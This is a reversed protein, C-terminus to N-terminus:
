KYSRYQSYGSSISSAANGFGGILSAMGQQKAASATASGTMRINAIGAKQQLKSTTRDIKNQLITAAAQRNYGRAERLGRTNEMSALETARAEIDQMINLVTPNSAGAGSAAARATVTSQLLAAQRFHERMDVAAAGQAERGAQKLQDAQWKAFVNSQKREYKGLERTM